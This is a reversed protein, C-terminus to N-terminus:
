TVNVNLCQPWITYRQMSMIELSDRVKDLVGMVRLEARSRNWSRRADM